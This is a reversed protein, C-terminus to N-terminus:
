PGFDNRSNDRFWHWRERDQVIVAEFNGHRTKGFDSQTLSVYVSSRGSADKVAGQLGLTRQANAACESRRLRVPISGAQDLQEVVDTNFVAPAVLRGYAETM